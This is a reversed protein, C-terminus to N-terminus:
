LSSWRNLSVAMDSDVDMDIEIGIGIGMDMDGKFSGKLPSRPARCFGLVRISVVMVGQVLHPPTGSAKLPIREPQVHYAGFGTPYSHYNPVRQPDKSYYPM